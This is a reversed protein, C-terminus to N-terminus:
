LNHVIFDSVPHIIIKVTEEEEEKDGKVINEPGSILPNQLQFGPLQCKIEIVPLKITPLQFNCFFVLACSSLCIWPLLFCLNQWYIHQWALESTRKIDQKKSWFKRNAVDAGSNSQWQLVWNGLNSSARLNLNRTKGFMRHFAWNQGMKKKALLVRENFASFCFFLKGFKGAVFFINTHIRIGSLSQYISWFQTHAYCISRVAWNM